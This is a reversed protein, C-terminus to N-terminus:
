ARPKPARPGARHIGANHKQNPNTKVLLWTNGNGAIRYPRTATGSECGVYFLCHHAEDNPLSSHLQESVNMRHPREASDIDIPRGRRGNTALCVCASPVM